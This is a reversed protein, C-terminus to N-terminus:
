RDKSLVVQKELWTSRLVVELNYRTELASDLLYCNGILTTIYPTKDECKLYLSFIHSFKVYQDSIHKESKWITWSPKPM